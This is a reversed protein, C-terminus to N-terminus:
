PENQKLDDLSFSTAGSSPLGTPDAGSELFCGKMFELFDMIRKLSQRDHVVTNLHLACSGFTCGELHFNPDFLVITCRIFACNRYAHGSLYVVTDSFTAPGQHLVLINTNENV